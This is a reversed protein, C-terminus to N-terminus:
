SIASIKMKLKPFRKWENKLETDCHQVNRNIESRVRDILDLSPEMLKQIHQKVLGEFPVDFIPVDFLNPRPGASNESLCARADKIYVVPQIKNLTTEFDDHIIRFLGTNCTGHRITGAMMRQFVRTFKTIIRFLTDRKDIVGDGYIKLLKQNEMIMADVRKRLDPLHNRIHRILLNSLTTALFATGSTEALASYHHQFFETESLLQEDISKNDKIDQQSRNVVGIIGLKVPLVNGNLVETADTGKDM